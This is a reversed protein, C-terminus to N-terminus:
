QHNQIFYNNFEDENLVKININKEQSKDKMSSIINYGYNTSGYYSKNCKYCSGSYGYIYYYNEDEEINTIGSNLKWSDGSLYGGVWTAFVKYVNDPLQIIIWKDPIESINRM